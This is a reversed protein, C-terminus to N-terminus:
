DLRSKAVSHALCLLHRIARGLPERAYGVVQWQISGSAGSSGDSRIQPKLYVLHQM